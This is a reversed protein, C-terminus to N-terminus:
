ETLGRFYREVKRKYESPIEEKLGEMVKERFIKPVRYAEKPPPEFEERDLGTYGRERPRKVEPQPLTPMPAWPGYYWGPRPDYVLHYGWQAAQMRMAMQQGMQQMAQQSKTLRRIVEQEPPIAGPADENKLKGSAEGMLGTAARLDKLIETDLGPFLQSLLDLKERLAKTREGLNDQRSSLHPFKDKDAPTMVEKSSPFLGEIMARLESIMRQDEPKGPLEKELERALTSFGELRREKLLRELEKITDKQEQPL